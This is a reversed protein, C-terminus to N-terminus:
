KSNNSLFKIREQEKKRFLKPKFDAEFIEGSNKNKIKNGLFSKANEEFDEFKKKGKFKEKINKKKIRCWPCSYKYNPDQKLFKDINKNSHMKECNIHHQFNFKFKVWLDCFDCCIWDKGDFDNSNDKYISVCYYCYQKNKYAKMCQNCLSKHKGKSIKIKSFNLKLSTKGKLDCIKNECKRTEFSTIKSNLLTYKTKNKKEDYSKKKINKEFKQVKEFESDSDKKDIQPLNDLEELSIIGESFLKDSADLKPNNISILCDLHAENSKFKKCATSNTQINNNVHSILNTTSNEALNVQKEEKVIKFNKYM